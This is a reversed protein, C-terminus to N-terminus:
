VHANGVIYCRKVELTESITEDYVTDEVASASKYSCLDVAAGTTGKVVSTELIAANSDTDTDVSVVKVLIYGTMTGPAGDAGFNIKIVQGPLFFNPQTGSAGVAIANTSQGYINQRNGAMMYDAGMKFFYKDGAALLGDAVSADGTNGLAASQGHDIVYAYRKHWSGRRETFKFKPDDTPKKAAMSVFRFFPDQSINLESVRDGFNYRRRLDGTNLSSGTGPNSANPATGVTIDSLKFNDAM